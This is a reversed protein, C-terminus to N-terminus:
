FKIDVIKDAMRWVRLPLNLDLEKVLYRNIVLELKEPTEVPINSPSIGNVIKHVLRAAQRGNEYRSGAYSAFAGNKISHSGFGFIPIKEGMAWPLIVPRLSQMTLPTPLQLIVDVDSRSLSAAAKKIDAESEVEVVQIDFGLASSANQVVALSKVSPVLSPVHFCLVKGADPLIKRIYWLRKAMLQSDNTDIGTFNNGSSVMGAVIGRDVSSSVSLFIVPIATGASAALLADAEVGGGAVAIDPKGAIIEKALGSLEGRNGAANKVTYIFTHKEEVAHDVLADKLGKVTDQRIDGIMLISINIEKAFVITVSTFTVFFISAIVIFIISLGQHKVKKGGM